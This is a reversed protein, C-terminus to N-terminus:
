NNRALHPMGDKKLSAAVEPPMYKSDHKALVQQAMVLNGAELKGRAIIGQGERFLDPLIGDYHVTVTSKNDTLQFSVKLSNPDHKISGPVVLGGVRITQGFPADGAAIQSPAYFLNINQRLAYVTLSVATGVGVLIAMVLLMRRRRVPTM